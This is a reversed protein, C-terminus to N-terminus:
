SMNSPIDINSSSSKQQSPTDGQFRKLKTKSRKNNDLGIESSMIQTAEDLNSKKPFDKALNTKSSAFHLEM